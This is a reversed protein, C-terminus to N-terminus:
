SEVSRVLNFLQLMEDAERPFYLAMVTIASATGELDHAELTASILAYYETLDMRAFVDARM